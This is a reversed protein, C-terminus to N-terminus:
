QVLPRVARSFQDLFVHVVDYTADNALEFRSILVNKLMARGEQSEHLKDFLGAVRQVLEPPMDDRAMLGNNILHDTTWKVELQAAQDPHARQYTLWPRMSATAATVNGLYVNTISSEQSGVYSIEIDKNVDLGNTQLFYQTMMTAALATKAPFTVTKGKLDAIERIGSDRRVLVLGRFYDDDGMKAFVHYGHQMANVAEYPNVLAFAFAASYLKKDFEEYNRSTEFTFHVGEINKNLYNLIPGYRELVMKPNHLPMFGFNYIKRASDAPQSSYSPQYAREEKSCSSLGLLLFLSVAKFITCNM